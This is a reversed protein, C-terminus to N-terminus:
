RGRTAIAGAGLVGVLLGGLGMAFARWRDSSDTLYVSAPRGFATMEPGREVTLEYRGGRPVRFESVSAPKLGGGGPQTGGDCAGTRVPRIPAGASAPRLRLGMAEVEDFYSAPRCQNGNVIHNRVFIRYTGADLALATRGPVATDSGELKQFTRYFGLGGVVAATLFVVLWVTVVANRAV